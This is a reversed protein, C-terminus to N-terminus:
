PEVPKASQRLEQAVTLYFNRGIATVFNRGLSELADAKLLKAADAHEGTAILYDCLEAAWQPDGNSMAAKAQNLLKDTGGALSIVRKAHEQTSYRQLNTPNGDFWGLYGTFISRVAWQPNGYYPQLYPHSAFREPLEVFDVLEDPTLGNNIGEVTKEFLYRIGDRYATLVDAVAKKGAVARTHGPVLYEPGEKLMM